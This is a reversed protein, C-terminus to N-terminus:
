AGRAAIAAGWFYLIAIVVIAVLLASGAYGM